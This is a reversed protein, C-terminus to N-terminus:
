ESDTFSAKISATSVVLYRSYYNGSAIIIGAYKKCFTASAPALLVETGEKPRTSALLLITKTVFFAWATIEATCSACSIPSPISANYEDQSSVFQKSGCSSMAMRSQALLSPKILSCTSCASKFHM